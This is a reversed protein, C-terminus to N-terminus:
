IPIGIKKPMKEFKFKKGLKRISQILFHKFKFKPLYTIKIQETKTGNVQSRAFKLLICCFMKERM